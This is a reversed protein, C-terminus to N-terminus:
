QRLKSLPSISPKTKPSFTVIQGGAVDKMSSNQGNNWEVEIRQISDMGDLGLFFLSPEQSAFDTQSTFPIRRLNDNQLIVILQGGIFGKEIRIRVWNSLPSNSNNRYLKFMGDFQSIVLDPDGDADFDLPALGRANLRGFGSRSHSIIEFKSNTRDWLQPYGMWDKFGSYNKTQKLSESVPKRGKTSGLFRAVSFNSLRFMNIPTGKALLNHKALMFELDFDGDFDFWTSAWGWGGKRLGYNDAEDVFIGNKNVMVNHGAPNFAVKSKYYEPKIVRSNTDVQMNSIYLDPWEDNNFNIVESSMGNRNTSPRMYRHKFQGDKNNLYVSDRFYDTAVHVDQWGDNNLDVFSAAVSWHYRKFVDHNITEFTGCTGKLLYNRHANDNPMSNTPLNARYRKMVMPLNSMMDGLQYVFVDPCGDKNYDGSTAGLGHTLHPNQIMEVSSFNGETNKMLRLKGEMPVLLIDKWGDQDYDIWLAATVKFDFDPFDSVEQFRGGVNEFLNPTTGGVTLIDYYRDHNYDAVYVGENDMDSSHYVRGQDALVGM